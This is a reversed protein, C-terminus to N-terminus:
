VEKAKFIDQFLLDALLSVVWVLFGKWLNEWISSSTLCPFHLLLMQVSDWLERVGAEVHDLGLPLSARSTGGEVSSGCRRLDWSSAESAVHPNHIGLMTSSRTMKGQQEQIGETHCNTAKLKKSGRLLESASPQLWDGRTLRPPFSFLVRLSSRPNQSESPEVGPRSHPPQNSGVQEETLLLHWNSKGWITPTIAVSSFMVFLIHDSHIWPLWVWAHESHLQQTRKDNKKHGLKLLLINEFLKCKEQSM